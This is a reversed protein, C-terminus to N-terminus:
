QNLLASEVAQYRDSNLTELMVALPTVTSASLVSKVISPSFGSILATGNEHATVPFNNDGGFGGSRHAINWWIVKPLQYSHREFMTRAMELPAANGDEVCADFGMDSMVLLYEPMDSHAVEGMVAVRLIERFASELSTNMGWDHDNELQAMKALLDGQLKKITSNASFTLWLDKFAGQQKDAIYLGLSVAVDLATLNNNSGGVSTAMSGSVDVM